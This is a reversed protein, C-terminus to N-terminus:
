LSKPNELFLAKMGLLNREVVVGLSKVLVVLVAVVVYNVGLSALLPLTLKFLVKRFCVLGSLVKISYNPKLWKDPRPFERCLLFLM